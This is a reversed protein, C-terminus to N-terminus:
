CISSVGEEWHYLSRNKTDPERYILNVKTKAQTFDFCWLQGHNLHFNVEGVPDMGFIQKILM